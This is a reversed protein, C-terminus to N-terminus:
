YFLDSYPLIFKGQLIKKNGARTNYIATINIVRNGEVGPKQTFELKTSGNETLLYHMKDPIFVSNKLEGLYFVVRRSNNSLSCRLTYRRYTKTNDTSKFVIEPYSKLLDGYRDYEKLGPIRNGNSYPIDAQLIGDRYFKKQIGHIEGNKYPTIRYVEGSTYFWRSTDAKIGNEYYIESHLKGDPYYRKALGHKIGNKYSIESYLYGDTHYSKYIGTFKSEETPPRSTKSSLIVTKDTEGPTNTCSGSTILTIAVIFIFYRNVRQTMLFLFLQVLYMNLM